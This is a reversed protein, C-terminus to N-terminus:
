APEGGKSDNGSPIFFQFLGRKLGEERLAFWGHYARSYAPTRTRKEKGARELAARLKESKIVLDRNTM